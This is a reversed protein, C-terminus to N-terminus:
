RAKGKGKGEYDKRLPIVDGKDVDEQYWGTIYRLFIIGRVGDVEDQTLGFTGVGIMSPSSMAMIYEVFLEAANVYEEITSNCCVGKGGIGSIAPPCPGRNYVVTYLSILAVQIQEDIRAVNRHAIM